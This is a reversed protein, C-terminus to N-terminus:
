GEPFVGKIGALRCFHRLEDTVNRYGMMWHHGFGHEDIIQLLKKWSCDPRFRVPNGEFVMESTVASGAAACLRYNGKRGVLNIYTAEPAAKAPFRICVGREWIRVPVLEIQAPDAALSPAACGCHSTVITNAVPDIDLIEGFHAPEGTLTQVLYMALGANMDGECAAPLGDECLLGTVLCVTGALHPYCGLGYVLIGEARALDGLTLYLSAVKRLSDESSTVTGALGHLRQLEGEIRSGDLREALDHIEEWGYSLVQCGFTRMVEVEDFAIPTMGPTRRGVFAIKGRELRRRVAAARAYALVPAYTEPSYPDGYFVAREVELDTLLSGLQHAGVLSGSRLGPIALIALPRDVTKLIRVSLHDFSWTLVVALLLDPGAAALNRAAEEASADDGVLQPALSVEMGLATLQREVEKITSAADEWGEESKELVGYLGVAPKVLMSTMAADEKM